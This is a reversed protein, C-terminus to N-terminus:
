PLPKIWLKEIRDSGGMSKTPLTATHWGQLAENYLENDYNSIFIMAPSEKAATLFDEHQQLSFEYAYEGGVRTSPVYPPDGYFLTKPDNISRLLAIADWDMIQVGQLRLSVERLYDFRRGQARRIWEDSTGKRRGVGGGLYGLTCDVMSDYAYRAIRSDSTGISKTPDVGGGILGLCCQVMAAYADPGKQLCRKCEEYLERSWQTNNLQEILLEVEDRIAAILMRTAPNIENYIETEVPPLGLGTSYLGGFLEVYRTYLFPNFLDARSIYYTVIQEIIWKRVRPAAKGGFYRGITPAPKYIKPMPFLSLQEPFELNM